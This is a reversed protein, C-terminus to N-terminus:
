RADDSEVARALADLREIWFRRQAALWASAHELPEARLECEHRRGRVERRVLGAAELVRVHKSAAEFSMALPAALEGISSTGEALRAIM